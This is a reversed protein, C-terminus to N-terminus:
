WQYIQRIASELLVKLVQAEGMTIQHNLVVPQNNGSKKSVRLSYGDGYKALVLTASGKDNKHFLGGPFKDTKPSGAQDKHGNLLALLEGIDPEGIKLTVTKSEDEWAFSANDNADVGTQKTTVWFLQVDRITYKSGDKGVAPKNVIKMELKSAAGDNTKKPKYVRWQERKKLVTTESM